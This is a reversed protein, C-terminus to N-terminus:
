SVAKRLQIWTPTPIELVLLRGQRRCMCEQRMMTAGDEKKGTLNYSIVVCGHLIITEPLEALGLPEVAGPRAIGTDVAGSGDYTATRQEM